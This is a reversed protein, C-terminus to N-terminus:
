EVEKQAQSDPSIAHMEGGLAMSSVYGRESVSMCGRGPVMIYCRVAVMVYERVFMTVSLTVDVNVYM